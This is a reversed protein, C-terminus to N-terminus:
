HITEQRNAKEKKATGPGTSKPGTDQDKQKDTSGHQTDNDVYANLVDLVAARLESYLATPAEEYFITEMNDTVCVIGGGNLSIGVTSIAESM